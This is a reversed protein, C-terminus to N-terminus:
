PSRKRGAVFFQVAKNEAAAPGPFPTPASAFYALHSILFTSGPFAPILSRTILAPMKCTHYEGPLDSNGCGPRIVDCKLLPKTFVVEPIKSHFCPLIFSRVHGSHRLPTPRDKMQFSSEGLVAGNQNEVSFRKGGGGFSISKLLFRIVAFDTKLSTCTPSPDATGSVFNQSRLLRRSLGPFRFLVAPVTFLPLVESTRSFTGPRFIGSRKRYAREMRM